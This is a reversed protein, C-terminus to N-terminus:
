ISEKRTEPLEIKPLKPDNRCELLWIDYNPHEMASLSPSSSFIWGSFVMDGRRVSKLEEKFATKSESIEVFASNEPTEDEPRAYCAKVGVLMTDFMQSGGVPIEIDKTRGTQKNLARVLASNAPINTFAAAPVPCVMAAALLIAASNEM